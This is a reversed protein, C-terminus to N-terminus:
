RVGSPWLVVRLTQLIILLDLGISANKVYYLDYSLKSRADDLSAGYPYNIQAWGTLGAKVIHRENYLPLKEALDRIFEPREPRPGVFSMEGRLINFLQPIEDIRTRRLFNGIRTIRRDQAGAWVAGAAEADIRMTRLKLISFERMGRTVRTQSYFPSHRDQLWVAVIGGLLLPSTLILLALSVTIDLMRKLFRDLATTAFGDSYLLWTLDLRKIDIRRIETELFSMYQYVPYGAMKCDILLDLPMGRREDPAIVIQDSRLRRATALYGSNVRIISSASSQALRPDVKGFRDDHVFTVDYHLNRGENKLMWVLDWAREGAGVILLRRKLLRSKRLRLFILRAVMGCGTFCFAAAIFLPDTFRHPWSSRHVVLLPPVLLLLATAGIAGIGVVLPLRRIARRVTLIIDRRYMGLAYLSLLNIGGYLAVVVGIGPGLHPVSGALTFWAIVPWLLAILAADLCFM